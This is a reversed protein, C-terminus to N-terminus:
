QKNCPMVSARGDSFLNVFVATRCANSYNHKGSSPQHSNYVRTPRGSTNVHLHLVQACRKPDQPYLKDIKDLHKIVIHPRFVSVMSTKEEFFFQVKSHEAVGAQQFELLVASIFNQRAAGEFGQYSDGAECSCIGLVFRLQMCAKVMESISSM